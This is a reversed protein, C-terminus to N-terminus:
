GEGVGSIQEFEMDMSDVIGDLWRMKEWGRRRRGEIKELMLTKELSNNRWMLHGLIPIEAETDTRGIFIRPQNGKLNVPKIEKSDLPSELVKELLDEWGLFQVSTEQMAPLNNVLQAILSAIVKLNHNFTLAPQYLLRHSRRTPIKGSSLNKKQNTQMWPYELTPLLSLSRKLCKEIRPSYPNNPLSGSVLLKSGVLSVNGQDKSPLGLINTHRVFHNIKARYIHKPFYLKLNFIM